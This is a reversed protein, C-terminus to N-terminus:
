ISVLSTFIGSCQRDPALCRSSGSGELPETLKILRDMSSNQDKDSIMEQRVAQYPAEMSIDKELKEAIATKPPNIGPPMPPEIFQYGGFPFIHWFFQTESASQDFTISGSASYNIRLSQALPAYPENPYVLGVAEGPLPAEKGDDERTKTEIEVKMSSDDPVFTLTGSSTAKTTEAEPIFPKIDELVANM